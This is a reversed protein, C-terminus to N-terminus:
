AKQGRKSRCRSIIQRINALQGARGDGSMEPVWELIQTAKTLGEDYKELVRKTTEAMPSGPPKENAMEIELWTRLTQCPVVLSFAPLVHYGGVALKDFPQSDLGREASAIALRRGITLMEAKFTEVVSDDALEAPYLSRLATGKFGGPMYTEQRVLLFRDVLSLAEAAEVVAMLIGDKGVQRGGVAAPHPLRLRPLL